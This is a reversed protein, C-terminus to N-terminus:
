ECPGSRGVDGIPILAKDGAWSATKVVGTRENAIKIGVRKKKVDKGRKEDGGCKKLALIHGSLCASIAVVPHGM